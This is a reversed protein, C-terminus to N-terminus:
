LGEPVQFEDVIATNDDTEWIVELTEGPEVAVEARHGIRIREYSAFDTEGLETGELAAGGFRVNEPDLESGGTHIVTVRENEVDYNFQFQTTPAHTRNDLSFVVVAVVSALTVTIAVMLVVGIVPSVARDDHRHASGAAASDTETIPTPSRNSPPRETDM